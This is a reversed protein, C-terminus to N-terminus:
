EEVFIFIISATAGPTNPSQLTTMSASVCADSLSFARFNSEERTWAHERAEADEALPPSLPHFRTESSLLKTCAESMSFAARLNPAALKDQEAAASFSAM